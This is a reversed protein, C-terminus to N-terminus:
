LNYRLFSFVLEDTIKVQKTTGGTKVSGKVVCDWVKNWGDVLDLRESTGSKWIKKTSPDWLIHCERGWIMVGRTVKVRNGNDWSHVASPLVEVTVDGGASRVRTAFDVCQDPANWDDKGGLLFLTKGATATLAEITLSCAPYLAIRAALELGEGVMNQYWDMMTYVQVGGGWSRGFTAIRNPDIQPHNKLYRVGAYLDSLFSMETMGSQKKGLGKRLSMGRNSYQDIQLVAYGSSLFNKQWRKDAKSLGGSSLLYVIAPHRTDEDTNAPLTLVAPTRVHTKKWETSTTPNSTAVNFSNLAVDGSFSKESATVELYFTVLFFYSFLMLLRKM